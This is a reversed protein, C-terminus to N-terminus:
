PLNKRLWVYIRCCIAELLLLSSDAARCPVTCLPFLSPKLLWRGKTCLTPMSLTQRRPYPQLSMRGRSSSTAPARGHMLMVDHVQQELRTVTGYQVIGLDHPLMVLLPVLGLLVRGWGGARWLNLGQRAWRRGRSQRVM